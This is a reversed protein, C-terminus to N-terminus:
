DKSIQYTFIALDSCYNINKKTLILNFINKHMQVKDNTSEEQVMRIRTLKKKKIPAWQLYFSVASTM